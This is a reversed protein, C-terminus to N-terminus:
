MNLYGKVKIWCTTKISGVTMTINKNFIFASIATIYFHNLQSISTIYNHYLLSITTIYFHYLQTISTIFNHYLLSITTIHYQYLQSVTRIYNQHLQSITTSSTTYLLLSSIFCHRVRELTFVFMLPFTLVRIYM